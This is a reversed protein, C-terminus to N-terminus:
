PETYQFPITAIIEKRKVTDLETMFKGYRNMALSDWMERYSAKIESYYAMYQAFKIKNSKTLSIIAKQPSEAKSAQKQPNTVFNKISRRTAEVSLVKQNLTAIGSSDIYIDCLNRPSVVVSEVKTDIPPLQITIGQDDSLHSTVLFFILLLFAIDAMSGANITPAQRRKTKHFYM